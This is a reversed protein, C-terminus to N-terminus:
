VECFTVTSLCHAPPCCCSSSPLFLFPCMLRKGPTDSLSAASALRESSCWLREWIEMPSMDWKWPAWFQPAKQWKVDCEGKKQALLRTHFLLQYASSLQYQKSTSLFLKQLALWWLNPFIHPHIRPIVTSNSILSEAMLGTVCDPCVDDKAQISLTLQAFSNQRKKHTRRSEMVMSVVYATLSERM